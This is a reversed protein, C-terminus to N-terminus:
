GPPWPGGSSFDNLYGVLGQWGRGDGVIAPRMRSAMERFVEGLAVAQIGAPLEEEELMELLGGVIVLSKFVRAVANAGFPTGEIGAEGPLDLISEVKYHAILRRLMEIWAKVRARDEPEGGRRELQDMLQAAFGPVDGSLTELALLHTKLDHRFEEDYLLANAGRDAAVVRVFQLGELYVRSLASAARGALVPEIGVDLLAGFFISVARPNPPNQFVAGELADLSPVKM